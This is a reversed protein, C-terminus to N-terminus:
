SLAIRGPPEVRCSEPSNLFREGDSIGLEVAPTCGRSSFDFSLYDLVRSPALRFLRPPGPLGPLADLGDDMQRRVTERLRQDLRGLGWRGRGMEEPRVLDLAIVDASGKLCDFSLPKSGPVGGDVYRRPHGGESLVVPPFVWPIACSAALRDEWPGDWGGEGRPTFRAYAPIGDDACLSVVTLECRGMLKARPEGGWSGVAERLPRSSFLSLPKLRPRLRLVRRRSIQRWEQLLDEERGLFYAAGCLAGASFGVVREFVLGARSLAALCGAEWAGLAGGGCLALGLPRRFSLGM